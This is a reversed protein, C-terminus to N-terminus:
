CCWHYIKDGTGSTNNIGTAFKRGPVVISAAFKGGTDALSRHCIAVPILLVPPLNAVPTPTTVIPVIDSQKCRLSFNSPFYNIQINSRIGLSTWVLFNLNKQNFIKGTAVLPAGQAAFIVSLQRFFKFRGNHSVRYSPPFQNM